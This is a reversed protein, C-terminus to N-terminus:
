DSLYGYLNRQLNLSQTLGLTVTTIFNFCSFVKKKRQWNRALSLCLRWSSRQRIAGETILKSLSDGIHESSNLSLILLYNETNYWVPSTVSPYGLPRM